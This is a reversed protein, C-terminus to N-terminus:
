HVAFSLIAIGTLVRGSPLSLWKVLNVCWEMGQLSSFERKFSSSLTFFGVDSLPFVLVSMSFQAM